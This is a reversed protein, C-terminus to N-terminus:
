RALDCTIDMEDHSVLVESPAQVCKIFLSIVKVVLLGYTAM